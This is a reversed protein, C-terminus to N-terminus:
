LEPPIALYFVPRRAYSIEKALRAYTEDDDFDGRLYDLRDELRSVVEADPDDVTAEISARARRDLEEQSWRNRAIGIVRCDLEGREELGYLARFTMRDALAGTIGFIVIVDAADSM